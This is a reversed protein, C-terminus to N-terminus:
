VWINEARNVILFGKANLHDMRNYLLESGDMQRVIGDAQEAICHMACTDWECTPGFRYYVDALGRAVMVGKLSSGASLMERIDARHADILAQEKESSYSKSSVWVLGSTKDSVHLPARKGDAELWAGHGKTAYFVEGTVPVVVVGLVPRHNQVLGINVTFEGNKKIFEKTGDLPDVIWCYEADMPIRELSSEESLIPIEPLAEYMMKCIIENSALDALTLPSEDAKLTVSASFDTQYIDLIRWAAKQAASIACALAFSLDM